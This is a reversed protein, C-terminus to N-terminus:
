LQQERPLKTSSPGKEYVDVVAVVCTTTDTILVTDILTVCVGVSEIEVLQPFGLLIRCSEEFDVLRDKLGVSVELSLAGEAAEEVFRLLGVSLRVWDVCFDTANGPLVGVNLTVSEGDFEEGAFLDELESGLMEAEGDFEEGAFLDELESGLMEAEGDLFEECFILRPRPTPRNKPTPSAKTPKTM